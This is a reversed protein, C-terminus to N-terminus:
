KTPQLATDRLFTYLPAQRFYNTHHVTPSTGFDHLCNSVIQVASPQQYVGAVHIMSDTDVVLDHKQPFILDAGANAARMKAETAFKWIQLGVPAPDFDSIVAFYKPSEPQSINLRLLEPNVRTMASLGPVISVAADVAPTKAALGTVSAAVRLLGSVVSLFPILSAGAGFGTALAQHVNTLWSLADRLRRPTALSTGDLPCGVFVARRAAPAAPPMVELWWRAVLGGRSHAIVDIAAKSGRFYRALDVANM